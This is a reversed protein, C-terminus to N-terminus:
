EAHNIEPIIEVRRDKSLQHEKNYRYPHSSSYSWIFMRDGSIGKQRLLEAVAQARKLALRQNYADTGLRCAHGNVHIKLHPHQMMMAAVSDLIYAPELIPKYEDFNFWIVAESLLSDLQQEAKKEEIITITDRIVQRTHVTDHLYVKEQMYTTDHLYITDHIYITDHVEKPPLLDPFQKALKKLERKKEKETKIPSISVGIKLGAVWPHMAGIKDTGILGRYASMFAYNNHTNSFGLPTRADRKVASFDNLMYQAYAAIFLETRQNLRISTGLEAYVEANITNLKSGISEEQKAVFPETEFRGPLDYLELQWQEYWGKHIVAGATHAYNSLVPLSLNVGFAAHLGAKSDRDAFHRFRLGIPIQLLYSQQKEKWGDFTTRHIYREGMYDTLPSGDPWKDWQLPRTLTATSAVRTFQVGTQLGMYPLFFWTYGAGVSFSAGIMTNGGELTYGLSSVGGGAHIDIYHKVPKEKPKKKKPPAAACTLAFCALVAIIVYRRM